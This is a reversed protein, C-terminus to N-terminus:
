RQLFLESRIAAVSDDVWSPEVLVRSGSRCIGQLYNVHNREPASLFASILKASHLFFIVLIIALQGFMLNM